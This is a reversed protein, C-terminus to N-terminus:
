KGDKNSVCLMTCCSCHKFPMCPYLLLWLYFTRFRDEGVCVCVCVYKGFYKVAGIHCVTDYFVFKCRVCQTIMNSEVFFHTSRTLLCCFSFLLVRLRMQTSCLVTCYPKKGNEISLCMDIQQRIKKCIRICLLCCVYHSSTSLSISLLLTKLKCSTSKDWASFWDFLSVHEMNVDFDLGNKM